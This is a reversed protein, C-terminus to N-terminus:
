LIFASSFLLSEPSAQSNFYCMHWYLDPRCLWAILETGNKSHAPLIKNESCTFDGNWQHCWRLTELWVQLSTSARWFQDATREEFKGKDLCLLKHQFNGLLEKRGWINSDEKEKGRGKRDCMNMTEQSIADSWSSEKNLDRQTSQISRYSKQM